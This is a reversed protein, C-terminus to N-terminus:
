RMFKEPINGKEMQEWEEDSCLKPDRLVQIGGGVRALIGEDTRYYLMGRWQKYEQYDPYKRILRPKIRKEVRLGKTGSWSHTAEYTRWEWNKPNKILEKWEAEKRRREKEEMEKLEKKLKTIEKKIDEASKMEVEEKQKFDEDLVVQSFQELFNM